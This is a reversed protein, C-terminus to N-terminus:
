DVITASFSFKVEETLGQEMHFLATISKFTTYSGQAKLHYPISSPTYSVEIFRQSETDTWKADTCGCSTSLNVTRINLYKPISFQVTLRKGVKIQGLDKHTETVTLM